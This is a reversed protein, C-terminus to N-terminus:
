RPRGSIRRTQRADDHGIRVLAAVGAIGFAALVLLGFANLAVLIAGEVTSLIGPARLLDFGSQGFNAWVAFLGLWCFLSLVIAGPVAYNPQDNRKARM